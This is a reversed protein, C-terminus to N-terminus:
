LLPMNLRSAGTREAILADKMPKTLYARTKLQADSLKALQDILNDILHRDENGVDPPSSFLNGNSWHVYPIKKEFTIEIENEHDKFWRSGLEVCYPGDKQRIYVFNTMAQGRQRLSQYDLLYFFKHLRFLSMPALKSIVYRVVNWSAELKRSSPRGVSGKKTKRRVFEGVFYYDASQLAFNRHIMARAGPHYLPILDVSNWRYPRRVDRRLSLAHNEIARTAELAALGLTVVTLPQIVEIQKRLNEACQILASRPPPANNGKDDRPNCLVANTVFVERRSLGSLKLLREFNDGAADGHFPVSTRDAGLRGPAEGVFMVEAGPAGNAWSLVRTCGAMSPCAQCAQVADILREFPENLHLM